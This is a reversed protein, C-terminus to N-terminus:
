LFLVTSGSLVTRIPATQDPDVGHTSFVEFVRVNSKGYLRVFICHFTLTIMCKRLLKRM